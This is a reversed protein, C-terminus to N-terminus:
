GIDPNMAASLLRQVEKQADEVSGGRELEIANPVITSADAGIAAAVSPVYTGAGPTGADNLVAASTDRAIVVTGPSNGNLMELCRAALAESSLDWGTRPLARSDEMMAMGARHGGTGAPYLLDQWFIKEEFLLDIIPRYIDYPLRLLAEFVGFNEETIPLRAFLAELAPLPRSM